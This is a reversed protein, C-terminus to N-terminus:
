EEHMWDLIKIGVIVLSTFAAIVGFFWAYVRLAILFQGLILPPVILVSLAISALFVIGIIKRM